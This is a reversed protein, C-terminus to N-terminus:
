SQWALATTGLWGAAAKLQQTKGPLRALYALRRLQFAAPGALTFGGGTLAAEGMGLSIMEGLDKFAFPETTEGALSHMLNSALCEAQQFAVQATIPLPESTAIQAIDGLAFVGPQNILQLDAGCRLRGRSDTAPSPLIPPAAFRLGATWIVGDVALQEQGQPGQIELQHASVAMVQSRCRLRVDKRQLARQAQERNFAKANPLLTSGQEVLEVVAAGELCDALKCALEVGTAGAGVVALRQLPRRQLKLQAIRQQLREVDQLSRFGLTHAEVGPIGFSNSRFLM